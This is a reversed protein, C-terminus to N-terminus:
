KPMGTQHSLIDRVAAKESTWEDMLKWDGPLLDKVKTEWHFKRVGPPLATQNHGQSFDDMLIGM